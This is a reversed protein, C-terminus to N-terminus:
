ETWYSYFRGHDSDIWFQSQGAPLGRGRFGHQINEIDFWRTDKLGYVSKLYLHNIPEPHSSIADPEAPVQGAPGPKSKSQEVQQRAYELCDPLPADFCYIRARGGSGVSSSALNINGASKPLDNEGFEQTFDALSLPRQTVHTQPVLMSVIGYVGCALLGAVLIGAIIFNRRSRDPKKEPRPKM